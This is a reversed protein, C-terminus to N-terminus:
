ILNPGIMNYCRDPNLYTGCRGYWCQQMPSDRWRPSAEEFILDWIFHDCAPHPYKDVGYRYCESDSITM